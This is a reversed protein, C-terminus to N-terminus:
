IFYVVFYLLLYIKTIYAKNKTLLTFFPAILERKILWSTTNKGDEIFITRDCIAAINPDHTVIIITQGLKNLEKLLSLIEKGTKQDLAGTPEDALIISPENVLARAIAVRQQQGGSLKPPTKKALGKIGTRELYMLAKEKIKKKSMNGYTLPLEVNELVTYEKILAFYQFVFGINKNRIRALEKKNLSQVLTNNISYEGSTAVDICGLINLLTSKGAGSPGMIAIMEGQNIELNIDNLAYFDASEQNYIKNINKLKILNM